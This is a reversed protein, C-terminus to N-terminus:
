KIQITLREALQKGVEQHITDKFSKSWLLNNSYIENKILKELDCKGYANNVVQEVEQHVADMIWERVDEKTIGLENAMYNRFMVWKDDKRAM